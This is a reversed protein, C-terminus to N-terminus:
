RRYSYILKIEDETINLLEISQCVKENFEMKVAFPMLNVIEWFWRIGFDKDYYNIITSIATGHSSIVINDKLALIQELATVMREQVEALCEGGELKYHFDEWQKEAFARFDEVWGGNVARERFNSELIIPIGCEKAFPRITDVARLYPSSYITEIKKDQLYRIVKSCSVKGRQTLPREMDSLINFDPEAHRILYIIAM